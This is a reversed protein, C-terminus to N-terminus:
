GLLQRDIPLLLKKINGIESSIAFCSIVLKPYPEYTNASATYFTFLYLDGSKRVTYILHNAEDIRLLYKSPDTERSEEFWELTYGNGYSPMTAWNENRQSDALSSASATNDAKNRYKAIFADFNKKCFVHNWAWFYALGGDEAYMPSNFIGPHGPVGHIIEDARKVDDSMKPKSFSGGASVSPLNSIAIECSLILSLIKLFKNKM